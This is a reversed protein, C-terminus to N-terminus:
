SILLDMFREKITGYNQAFLSLTILRKRVKLYMFRNLAKKKLSRLVEKLIGSINKIVYPEVQRDERSMNRQQCVDEPLDFVIAVLMYDYKSAIEAIPARAKPQVNTADIVILKGAKLRKRAIYYLADFADDSITQDNEDDCIIGRFYDSSLVETPKFYKKSFTSKGSGSAGILTVLSLEPIEIRM